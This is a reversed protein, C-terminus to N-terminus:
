ELSVPVNDDGLLITVSFAIVSDALSFPFKRATEGAPLSFLLMGDNGTDAL